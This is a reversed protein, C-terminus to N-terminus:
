EIVVNSIFDDLFLEMVDCSEQVAIGLADDSIAARVDEVAACITKGNAELVVVSSSDGDYPM